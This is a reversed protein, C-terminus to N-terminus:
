PSASVRSEDAPRTAGPAPLLVHFTAGHGSTSEVWMTGGHAEVICRSIYLGLGKGGSKPDAQWGREFVRELQGPALGKGSDQVWIRIQGDQRSAGVEIRGGPPTFKVANNMLNFLVQLIRERDFELWLDDPWARHVHLRRDDADAQQLLCASELMQALNGPQPQVKVEGHELGAVDLVTKVLGLLWQSGRAVTGLARKAHEGGRSLGREAHLRFAFLANSLDHALVAMMEDRARTAEEARRFLSANELVMSARRAFEETLDRTAEESEPLVLQFLTVTGHVTGGLRLPATVWSRVASWEPRAGIDDSWRGVAVGGSDRVGRLMQTIQLRLMQLADGTMKRRLPDTRWAATEEGDLEVWCGDVAGFAAAGAIEQVLQPEPAGLPIRNLRAGAQSLFRLSQEATARVTVDHIAVRVRGPGDGSSVPVVVMDVTYFRQSVTRFSVETRNEQKLESSRRIVTRFALPDVMGVVAQLRRGILASRDLGILRAATINAEVIRGDGELTLYGMPAFDFLDVYRERSLELQEQAEGLARNQIELEIQHVRLEHILRENKGLPSWPSLEQLQALKQPGDTDDDQASV